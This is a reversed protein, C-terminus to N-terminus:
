VSRSVLVPELVDAVDREIVHERRLDDEEAGTGHTASEDAVV